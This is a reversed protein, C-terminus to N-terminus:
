RPTIVSPIYGSTTPMTLPGNGGQTRWQAMHLERGVEEAGYGWLHVGCAIGEVGFFILWHELQCPGMQLDDVFKKKTEDFTRVEICIDAFPEDVLAEHQLYPKRSIM